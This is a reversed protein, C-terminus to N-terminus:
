QCVMAWALNMNKKKQKKALKLMVCDLPTPPDFKIFQVDIWIWNM